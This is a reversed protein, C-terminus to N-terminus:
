IRPSRKLLYMEEHSAHASALMRVSAPDKRGAANLLDRVRMLADKWTVVQQVGDKTNVCRSAFGSNARSGCTSSAASTACGSTTSQPTTARRSARGAARGEGMGAQGQAVGDHQLGELVAHLHHRRRAPQGVPALPLPVAQDHHRRGPLRGDPQGLADLARGARQVDRDRQRQRPQDIGIQADGDVERM